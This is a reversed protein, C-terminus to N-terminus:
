GIVAPIMRSAHARNIRRIAQPSQGYHRAFARPMREPHGFGVQLAIQEIPEARDEVRVRAVEARLRVVARAATEGTEKLFIRAFQRPSICAVEALREISLDAQLHERAYALAECVRSSAPELDLITLCRSQGGSRRYYVLMDRAVPRATDRGCEAAILALALDTGATV